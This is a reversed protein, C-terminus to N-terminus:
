NNLAFKVVADTGPILQFPPNAPVSIRVTIRDDHVSSDSSGSSGSGDSSDSASSDGSSSATDASGSDGGANDKKELSATFSDSGGGNASSLDASDADDAPDKIDQVSGQLERGEITYSAFQGLRVKDKDEPRIKAEVWLNDADGVNVITDGAKVESGEQVDTYYVTGSAPAVIDTAQADAQANALAAEAQKVALEAQKVAEPNAPQLVPQSATSPVSPAAPAPAPTSAAAAAEQYNAVAADREKASVAGMEYLEQMRHMRSAASAVAASNGSSVPASPAAVPAPASQPVSTMQGQKVQELNRKSLEVNQKLQDIQEDTVNPQIHAIIDGADVTDGDQVVMEVVTGDAKAKAAVMSSTVQADYVTFSQHRHQYFYIGAACLLALVILGILGYRLFYKARKTVDVEGGHKPAKAAKGKEAAKSAKEQEPAKASDEAPDAAKKVADEAVAESGKEKEAQEQM